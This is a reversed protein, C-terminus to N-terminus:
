GKTHLWVNLAVHNSPCLEWVAAVILVAADHSSVGAVAAAKADAEVGAVGDASIDACISHGLTLTAQSVEVGHGAVTNIYSAEDARADQAMSLAVAALGGLVACFVTSKNLM